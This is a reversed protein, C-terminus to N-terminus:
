SGNYNTLLNGVADYAYAKIKFLTDIAVETPTVVSIAAIPGLVNFRATQGSFAGTGVTITDRHYPSTVAAPPTNSVGNVFNAPAGPTLTGSTDSWTAPGNYDTLLNGAEDYAKAKVTFNTAHTAESPGFTEISDIPGFVDFAGSQGSKGGSSVYIRD